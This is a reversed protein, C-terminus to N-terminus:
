SFVIFVLLTCRPGRDEFWWHESGDIQILEGVLRSLAAWAAGFTEGGGVDPRLGQDAGDSRASVSPRGRKKSILAAPGGAHHAELLRFVQRTTVSMLQAAECPRIREALLDQLAHVRDIEARNMLLVTM